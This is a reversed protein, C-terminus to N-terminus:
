GIASLIDLKNFEKVNKDISDFAREMQRREYRIKLDAIVSIDIKQLKPAHKPPFLLSRVNPLNQISYENSHASCKNVFLM